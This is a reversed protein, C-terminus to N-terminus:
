TAYIDWYLMFGLALYFVLTFVIDAATGKLETVTYFTGNFGRLLMAEYIRQSRDIANIFTLGLMNAVTRYTHLSNKPVFGRLKAATQLRQWEEGIIQIYRCTFLFLFVLKDPVRLRELACGIRQLSIGDALALFALMIANCKVTVQLALRVGDSSWHLPGLAAISEGPMTLPVTLWIFVIFVNVVALNRALSRVSLRAIAALMLSFALCFCSVRLSQVFSFCFAAGTAAVLLARPDFRDFVSLTPSYREGIM